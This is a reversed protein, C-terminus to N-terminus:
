DRGSTQYKENGVFGFKTTGSKKIENLVCAATEYQMSPPPEFRLEGGDEVWLIKPPADCQRLVAVADSNDFGDSYDAVVNPDDFDKGEPAQACAALVLSCATVLLHGLM